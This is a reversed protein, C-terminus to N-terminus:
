VVYLVEASDLIARRRISNASREVARRSVLDVERGVIDSLEDWADVFDWGWRADEEFTYLFDVDSQPDFDDRLASGFVELRKIRWRRCFAEVRSLPLTLRLNNPQHVM